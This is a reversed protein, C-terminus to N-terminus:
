LYCKPSSNNKRKCCFHLVFQKKKILTCDIALLKFGLLKGQPNFSTANIFDEYLMYGM